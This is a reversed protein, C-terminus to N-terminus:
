AGGVLVGEFMLGLSISVCLMAGLVGLTGIADMRAEEKPSIKRTRCRLGVPEVPELSCTLVAFWLPRTTRLRM